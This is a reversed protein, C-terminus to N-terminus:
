ALLAPPGIPPPLVVSDPQAPRPAAPVTTRSVAVIAIPVVPLVVLRDNAITLVATCCCTDLCTCDHSHRPSRDHDHPMDPMDPMGPMAAHTVRAADPALCRHGSMPVATALVWVIGMVASLLRHM